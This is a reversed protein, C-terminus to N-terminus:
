KRWEILEDIAKRDRPPPFEAPHGLTVLTLIEEGPKLDLTAQLDKIAILPATYWCTGYGREEALLIFQAIVASVSQVDPHGFMRAIEWARFGHEVLIADLATRYGQNIFLVLVPAHVFQLAQERWASLRSPDASFESWGAMEDLRRRVLTDLMRILDANTIVIFRWMQRNSISPAMTALSLMERIDVASVPEETFRHISRRHRVAEEVHM